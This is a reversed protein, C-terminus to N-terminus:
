RGALQAADRAATNTYRVPKGHGRFVTGVSCMRRRALPRSHKRPGREGCCVCVAWFCGDTESRFVVRPHACHRLMLRRNM